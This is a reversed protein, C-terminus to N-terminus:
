IVQSDGLEPLKRKKIRHHAGDGDPFLKNHLFTRLCLELDKVMYKSSASSVLMPYNKVRSGLSCRYPLNQALPIPHLSELYLRKNELVM